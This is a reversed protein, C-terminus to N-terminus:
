IHILSLSLLCALSFGFVVAIGGIVPVVGQHNKRNDPRDVLNISVAFKYCIAIFGYTSMFAVLLPTIHSMIQLNNLPSAYNLASTILTEGLTKAAKLAKPPQEISAGNM